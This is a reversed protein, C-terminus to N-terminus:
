KNSRYSKMRLVRMRQEKKMMMNRKMTTNRMMINSMKNVRNIM